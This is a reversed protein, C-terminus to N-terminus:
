GQWTDGLLRGMRGCDERALVIAFVGDASDDLSLYRQHRARLKDRIEPGGLHVTM